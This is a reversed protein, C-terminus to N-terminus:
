RKTLNIKDSSTRTQYETAGFMNNKLTEIAPKIEQESVLMSVMQDNATELFMTYINYAAYNAQFQKYDNEKLEAYSYESKEYKSENKTEYWITGGSSYALIKSVLHYPINFKDFYIPKKQSQNMNANKTIFM